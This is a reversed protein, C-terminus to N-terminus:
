VITYCLRSRWAGPAEEVPLTLGPSVRYRGPPRTPRATRRTGRSATDKVDHGRGGRTWAVALGRAKRLRKDPSRSRHTPRDTLFDSDGTTRTPGSHACQYRRLGASRHNSLLRKHAVYKSNPPLRSESGSVCLGK